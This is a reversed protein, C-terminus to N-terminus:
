SREGQKQRFYEAVSDGFNALEADEMRKALVQAAALLKRHITLSRTVRMRVDDASEQMTPFMPNPVPAGHIRMQRDLKDLKDIGAGLDEAFHSAAAEFLWMWEKSSLVPMDGAPAPAPKKQQNM